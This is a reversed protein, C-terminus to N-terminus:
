NYNRGPRIGCSWAPGSEDVDTMILSLGFMESFYLILYNSNCLKLMFITDDPSIYSILYKLHVVVTVVIYM